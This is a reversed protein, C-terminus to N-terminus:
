LGGGLPARGSGKNTCQLCPPVTSPHLRDLPRQCGCRVGALTISRRSAAMGGAASEIKICFPSRMPSHCLPYCACGSDTKTVVQGLKYAPADHPREKGPVGALATGAVALLCVVAALMSLAEGARKASDVLFLGKSRVAEAAGPFRLISVRMFIECLM